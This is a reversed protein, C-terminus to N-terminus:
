LTEGEVFKGFVNAIQALYLAATSCQKTLEYQMIELNRTAKAIEDEAIPLTGSQAVILYQRADAIGMLLSAVQDVSSEQQNLLVLADNSVLEPTPMVSTAAQNMSVAFQQIIERM